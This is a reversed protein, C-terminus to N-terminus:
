RLRMSPMSLCHLLYGIGHVRSTLPPLSMGADLRNLTKQSAIQVQPLPGERVQPGPVSLHSFMRSSPMPTESVAANCDQQLVHTQLHTHFQLSVQRSMYRGEQAHPMHGSAHRFVQPSFSGRGESLPWFEEADARLPVNGPIATVEMAGM